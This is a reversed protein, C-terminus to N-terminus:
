LSRILIINLGKRKKADKFDEINYIPDSRLRKFIVNIIIVIKNSLAYYILTIYYIIILPITALPYIIINNLLIIPTIINYF